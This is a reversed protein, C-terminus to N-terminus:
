RLVSCFGEPTTRADSLAEVYWGAYAEVKRESRGRQFLM